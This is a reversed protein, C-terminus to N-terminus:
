KFTDKASCNDRIAATSFNAGNTSSGHKRSRPEADQVCSSVLAPATAVELKPALKAAGGNVPRANFHMKKHDHQLWTTSSSM